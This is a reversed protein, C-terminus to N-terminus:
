QRGGRGWLTPVPRTTHQPPVSIVAKAIAHKIPTHTNSRLAPPSSNPQPSFLTVATVFLLLFLLMDCTCETIPKRQIYYVCGRRVCGVTVAGAAAAAGARARVQNVASYASLWDFYQKGEVDWVMVGKGKSLVVPLPHYNHANYRKQYKQGWPM